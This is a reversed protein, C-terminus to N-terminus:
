PNPQDFIKHDDVRGLGLISKASQSSYVTELGFEFKEDPTPSGAPIKKKNKFFIRKRMHWTNQFGSNAKRYL